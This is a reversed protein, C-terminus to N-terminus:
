AHFSRWERIASGCGWLLEVAIIEVSCKFWSAYQMPDLTYLGLSWIGELSTVPALNSSTSQFLSTSGLPRHLIDQWVTKLWPPAVARTLWRLCCPCVHLTWIGLYILSDMSIGQPDFAFPGNASPNAAATQAKCYLQALVDPQKALLSKPRLLLLQRQPLLFVKCFTNFVAQFTRQPRLNWCSLRLCHPTRKQWTRELIDRM